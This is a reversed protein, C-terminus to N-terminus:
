MHRKFRQKYKRYTGFPTRCSHKDKVPLVQMGKKFYFFFSTLRHSECFITWSTIWYYYALYSNGPLYISLPMIYFSTGWHQAAIFDNEHQHCYIKGVVTHLREQGRGLECQLILQHDRDCLPVLSAPECCLRCCCSVATGSALFSFCPRRRRPGWWPCLLSARHPRALGCPCSAGPCGLVPRSAATLALGSRNGTGATPQVCGWSSSCVCLAPHSSLHLLEACVAPSSGGRAGTSAPAEPWASPAEQRSINGM